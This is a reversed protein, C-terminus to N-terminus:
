SISRDIENDRRIVLDHLAAFFGTCQYGWAEMLSTGDCAYVRRAYIGNRKCLCWGNVYRTMRIINKEEDFKDPRMGAQLIYKM